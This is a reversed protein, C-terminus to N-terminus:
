TSLPHKPVPELVRSGPAANSSFPAFGSGYIELEALEWIGRTNEPARFLVKRIPEDPMKLDITPQVFELGDIM